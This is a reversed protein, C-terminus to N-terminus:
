GKVAGSVMGDVFYRQTCLFFVIIPGILTSAAAMMVGMDSGYSGNMALFGLTATFNKAGQLFTSSILYENWSQLGILIAVTILGPSVVPRMIHWIVQWTGAGDIRASEELEKPVNLFFTRMLFVSLPMYLAALIFSTALINGILNLKAYAYYLPFLFLQIPVTMAMMFYMLIVGSGKIRKGSLVYGALSATVLVILVTCGTLKVSNIFGVSFNGTKWAQIYNELHLVFPWSLPNSVIETNTKFSNIVVLAIPALCIIVLVILVLHIIFNIGFQKKKSTVGM